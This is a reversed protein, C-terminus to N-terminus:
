IHSNNLVSVYHILYLPQDYICLDMLANYFCFYKYLHFLFFYLFIELNYQHLFLFYIILTEITSIICM